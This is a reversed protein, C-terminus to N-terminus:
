PLRKQGLRHQTAATPGRSGGMCWLQGVWDQCYVFGKAPHTKAGGQGLPQAGKQFGM